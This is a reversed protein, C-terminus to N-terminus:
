SIDQLMNRYKLYSEKEGVGNNLITRKIYEENDDELSNLVKEYTDLANPTELNNLVAKFSNFYLKINYELTNLFVDYLEKNTKIHMIKKTNLEKIKEKFEKGDTIENLKHNSILYRMYLIRELLTYHSSFVKVADDKYINNKICWMLFNLEYFFSEYESYSPNPIVTLNKMNYIHGAEHAIGSTMVMDEKESIQTFAEGDIFTVSSMDATKNFLVYEKNNIFADYFSKYYRDGFKNKIFDGVIEISDDKSIYQMKEERPLPPLKIFFPAIDNLKQNEKETLNYLFKSNEICSMFDNITFREEYVEGTSFLLDISLFDCMQIWEELDIKANENTENRLRDQLEQKKKTLYEINWGKQM